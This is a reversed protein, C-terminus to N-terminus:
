VQWLGFFLDWLHIGCLIRGYGTNEKNYFFLRMKELKRVFVGESPLIRDFPPKM